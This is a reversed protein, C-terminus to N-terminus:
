SKSSSNGVLEPTKPEQIPEQEEVPFAQDILTKFDPLEKKFMKQYLERVQTFTKSINTKEVYMILIDLMENLDLSLTEEDDLDLLISFIHILQEEKLNDLVAALKEFEDMSEDIFIERSENYLKAGDIGLFKVILIIKKLSIKPLAMKEGNSLVVEGISSGVDLSVVKSTVM